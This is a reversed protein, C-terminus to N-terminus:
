GALLCRHQGCGVLELVMKSVEEVQKFVYNFRWLSLRARLEPISALTYLFEEAPGLPTDPKSAKAEALMAREDDTPM